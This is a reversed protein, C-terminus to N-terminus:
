AELKRYITSVHIGLIKAAKSKNGSCEELVERIYAAEVEELTQRPSPGGGPGPAAADGAAPPRTVQPPPPPDSDSVESTVASAASMADLDLARQLDTAGVSEGDSMLLLREIVNKLERVNGPWPREQLTSLVAPELRRRPLSQEEALRAVLHRALDPIDEKRRRLSPVRIPYVSLRFLLDSRFRGAAVESKVSRNTAALFRVDVRRDGQAGVRRVRRDQLVRLLKAQLDLPMEGIEDLFLTGGDAQEILGPRDRDAGTFAGKTHGFLEAELLDRGLAACNVAVFAGSARHGGEHIARAVEEKGAGTQGTILITTDVHQIRSISARLRKMGRSSGALRALGAPHDSAGHRSHEQLESLSARMRRKVLAREISAELDTIQFPKRLLDIVGLRILETSSEVTPNATIVIIETEPAKQLITGALEVGDVDPMYLDTVVVDFPRERFHRWATRADGATVVEYSDSLLEAFAAVTTIEDDVLLIRAREHDTAQTM